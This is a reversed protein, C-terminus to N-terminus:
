GFVAFGEGFVRFVAAVLFLGGSFASVIVIIIDLRLFRHFYINKQVDDPLTECFLSLNHTYLYIFGGILIFLIGMILNIPWGLQSRLISGITVAGLAFWFFTSLYAIYKHINILM